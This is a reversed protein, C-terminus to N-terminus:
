LKFSSQAAKAEPTKPVFRAMTAEVATALADEIKKIQEATPDYGPGSLNGILMIKKIAAPVRKEALRVFKQAKTEAQAKSAVSPKSKNKSSM